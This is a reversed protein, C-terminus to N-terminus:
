DEAPFYCSFVSGGGDAEEVQVLGGHNTVIKKVLALGLGAGSYKGQQRGKDFLNFVRIRDGEVIGIGNDQVSICWYPKNQVWVPFVPDNLSVKRASVYIEPKTGEHHFKIANSLLQLFLTKLQGGNGRIQPLKGIDITAERELIQTHLQVIVEQLIKGLAVSEELEHQLESFTTLSDALLALRQASSQVKRITGRGKLSLKNGEEIVTKELSSYMKRLPEKLDHSTIHTFTALEENARELEAYKEELRKNLAKLELEAKVRYAVDHAILLIGDVIGEANKLPVFHIEFYGPLWLNQEAPVFVKHGRKVQRLADTIAKNTGMSPYFDVFKKGVINASLIGSFSSCTANWHIVNGDLDMAVVCDISADNLQEALTARQRMEHYLREWEESQQQPDDKSLPYPNHPTNM